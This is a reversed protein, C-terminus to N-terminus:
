LAAIVEDYDPQIGPHEAIWEYIVTRDEGIIFVARNCATYGEIFAFNNFEVGYQRTVQLHLDSLLPFSIGNVEAFKANAFPSDPSIGVVCAQARNLQDLRGEFICLEQDCIGSFAAPYFALIIKKGIVKSLKFEEKQSDILTFDPATKNLLSM